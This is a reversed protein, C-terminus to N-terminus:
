IGGADIASPHSADFRTVPSQRVQLALLSQSGTRSADLQQRLATNEQELFAVYGEVDAWRVLPRSLDGYVWRETNILGDNQPHEYGRVPVRPAGTLTIPALKSDLLSPASM